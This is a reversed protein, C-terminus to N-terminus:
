KLKSFRKEAAAIYFGEMRSESTLSAKRMFHKAQPHVNRGAKVAFLATSNVVTDGPKKEGKGMRHVSNIRVLMKNGKSNVQNGIVYGGKKAKFAARTYAQGKTGAMDASDVIKSRIQSIRNAARVNRTYAGGTRAANLPIFARGGIGGSNEQQEQDQVAQQQTGSNEVFGVTARMSNVDFGKATEVKSNAKYFNKTRHVFVNSEDPMTRLKVDFATKNLAERISVPMASRHMQGLRQTHQRVAESNINLIPM